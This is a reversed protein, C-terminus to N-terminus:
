YKKKNKTTIGTTVTKNLKDRLVTLERRKNQLKHKEQNNNM